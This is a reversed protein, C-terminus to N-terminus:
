RGRRDVRVAVRRGFLQLLVREPLLLVALRFLPSTTILRKNM